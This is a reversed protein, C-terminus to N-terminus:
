GRHHRRQANKRSVTAGRQAFRAQQGRLGPDHKHKRAWASVSLGERHAKRTAAGPRKVARQMWRNKRKASTAM